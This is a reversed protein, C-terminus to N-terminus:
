EPWTDSGADVFVLRNSFPDRVAMERTGWPMDEIGPRAFGYNKGNLEAHLADLDDTPIRVAAGPSCDGHHESLHLTCTDRSVELYLPLGAEFRHEWEVSFGLFDIYFAKAKPEDFIRLIPTVSGIRM